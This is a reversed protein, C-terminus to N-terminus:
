DRIREYKVTTTGDEHHIMSTVLEQKPRAANREKRQKDFVEKSGPSKKAHHDRTNKKLMIEAKHNAGPM